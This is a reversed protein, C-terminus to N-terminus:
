SLVGEAASEARRALTDLVAAHEASVDIDLSVVGDAATVAFTFFSCCQTERVSLEAARAALRAEPRLVITVRLREPRRVLMAADTFLGDWEALRLPRGTNPLTCAAPAQALAARDTDNM